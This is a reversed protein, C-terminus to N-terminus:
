MSLMTSIAPEEMKLNKHLVMAHCCQVLKKNLIQKVDIKNFTGFEKDKLRHAVKSIAEDFTGKITKNSHYKM